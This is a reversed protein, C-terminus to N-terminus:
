KAPTFSVSLTPAFSIKIYGLFTNEYIFGYMHTEAYDAQFHRMCKKHDEIDPERGLFERLVGTCVEVELGAIVEHMAALEKRFRETKSLVGKKVKNQERRTVPINISEGSKLPIKIMKINKFNTKLTLSKIDIFIHLVHTAM